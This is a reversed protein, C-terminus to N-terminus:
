CTPNNKRKLYIRYITLSFFFLNGFYNYVISQKLGVSVTCVPGLSLLLCRRTITKVPLKLSIALSLM